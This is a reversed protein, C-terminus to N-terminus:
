RRDAGAEASIPEVEVPVGVNLTGPRVVDCYIGLHGDTRQTIAGHVNKDFPVEPGQALSTFPCRVCPESARLVTEGIRIERGLWSQEIFEDTDPIDIVLNPRFRRVDLVSDPIIAALARLSATTVLHIPSPEYLKKANSATYPRLAVRFGLHNSLIDAAGSGTHWGRRDASVEVAEGNLRAVIEPV